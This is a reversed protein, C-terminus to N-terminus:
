LQALDENTFPARGWILGFAVKPVPLEHLEVKPLSSKFRFGPVLHTLGDPKKSFRGLGVSNIGCWGYEAGAKEWAKITAEDLLAPLKKDQARVPPSFFAIAAAVYIVRLAIMPTGKFRLSKKTGFHSITMLWEIYQNNRVSSHRGSSVEHLAVCSAFGRNTLN